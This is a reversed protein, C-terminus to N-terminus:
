SKPRRGSPVGTAKLERYARAQSWGPMRALKEEITPGVERWVKMAERKPMREKRGKKNRSAVSAAQMAAAKAARMGRAKAHVTTQGDDLLQAGKADTRQGTEIDEIEAGWSQVLDVAARMEHRTRGFISLGGVICLTDGKRLKWKGWSERGRGELYIDRAKLGHRKLADEGAKDTAYGKRM